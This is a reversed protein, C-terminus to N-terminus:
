KVAFLTVGHVGPTGQRPHAIPANRLCDYCAVLRVQRLGARAALELLEEGTPIGHLFGAWLDPVRAQEFAIPQEAVLEALYVRGGTKLVRRIERFARPRDEVGSLVGNGNVADTSQDDMPLDPLHGDRLEVRSALGAAGVAVRACARMAPSCDLGIVRGEPGVRRAAILLDTGAGCGLDLVTEGPYLDGAAFPNGFGAFRELAVLPLGALDAEPYGLYRRAYYPGRHFPFPGFPHRAMQDFTKRVGQRHSGPVTQPSPTVRNM